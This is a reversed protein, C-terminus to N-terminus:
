PTEVAGANAKKPQGANPDPRPNGFYDTRPLTITLGPVPSVQCGQGTANANSCTIFDVLPSGTAAPAYNGLPLGGGYNGYAGGTASPNTLSLPGWSVNIWNNGEDVTASPVLSFLPAGAISDPIGPPVGFGHPGGCGQATGCEPPVRSGNCYQAIVGTNSDSTYSAVPTMTFGSQHGTLTTDGRVGIDWYSGSPFGTCSGTITQSPAATNTFADFLSVMNQQNQNGTGRAGVGVYFSRNQSIADGLLIPNSFGRCNPHGAPCTIPVVFTTTLLSSNPTSTVGASQPCSATGAANHCEGAPASASPTGISYTLVGSSALTDNHMITNNIINVKLADQLSIGAGDWGAMNNVIINNTITM